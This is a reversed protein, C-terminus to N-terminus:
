CSACGHQNALALTNRVLGHSFDYTSACVRAALDRAGAPRAAGAAATLGGDALDDFVFAIRDGQADLLDDDCRASRRSCGGEAFSVEVNL